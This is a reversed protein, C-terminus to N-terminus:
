HANRCMNHMASQLLFVYIRMSTLSNFLVIIIKAIEELIDM